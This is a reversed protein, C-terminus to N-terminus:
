GKKVPLFEGAKAKRIYVCGRKTAGEVFYGEQCAVAVEGDKLVLVGKDTKKAAYTSLYKEPNGVVAFGDQADLILLLKESGEEVEVTYPEDTREFRANGTFWDYVCVQGKLGQFQLLDITQTKEGSGLHFSAIAVGGNKRNFVSVIGGDTADVFLSEKVPVLVGDARILRGDEECLGKLPTFDSEGIRDSIYVPGGSLAHLIANKRAQNDKTWWMDWDTYYLNGWFLTNYACHNIHRKFWEADDPLFDDSCRVVATQARHYMNESAMGMCNIIAGDFRSVAVEEIAGQMNEAWEGVSCVGEYGVYFSQRDIKIFSAGSQLIYDAFAGYVRKASEKDPKIAVLGSPLTTLDNAYAKAFAGDEDFGAWYGTSPFWVATEVGLAKLEDVCEKLGKPFRVSDAVFETLKAKYMEKVMDWFALGDPIENLHPCNAWMDDLMAWRVPVSKQQLELIKQKVGQASVRIHMADWSCWGLYELWTPYQRQNRTLLPRGMTKIAFRFAEELLQYPDEGYGYICIPERCSSLGRVGSYTVACLGEEDGKLVTKYQKGVLPLICLYGTETEALLAQTRDPVEAWSRGFKPACWCGSKMYDAVFRGEPLSSFRCLVGAKEDLTGQPLTVEM